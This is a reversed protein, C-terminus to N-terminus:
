MHLGGLRAQQLSGGDFRSLITRISRETPPKTWLFEVGVHFLGSAASPQSRTVRVDDTFERDDHAVRVTAHTGVDLRVWSELLCGSTSLDILRVPVHRGVVGVVDNAQLLADVAHM